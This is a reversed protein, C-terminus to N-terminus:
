QGAKAKENLASDFLRDEMNNIKFLKGPGEEVTESEKPFKENSDMIAPDVAPNAFDLDYQENVPLRPDFYHPIESTESKNEILTTWSGGNAPKQISKKSLYKKDSGSNPGKEWHQAFSKQTSLFAAIMCIAPLITLRKM